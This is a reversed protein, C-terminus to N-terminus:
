QKLADQLQAEHQRWQAGLAHWEDERTKHVLREGQLQRRAEEVGAALEDVRKHLQSM